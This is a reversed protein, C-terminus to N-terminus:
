TLSFSRFVSCITHAAFLGWHLPVASTLLTADKPHHVAEALHKKGPPSLGLSSKTRLQFKERATTWEGTVKSTSAM